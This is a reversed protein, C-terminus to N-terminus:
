GSDGARADAFVRAANAVARACDGPTPGGDFIDQCPGSLIDPQNAGIWAFLEMFVPPDDGEFSVSYVEGEGAVFRFTDNAIYGLAEGFDDTVTVECVVQIIQSEVCAKREQVAYNAAEAWGQYYLLEVAGEADGIAAALESRDWSYFATIVAEAALVSASPEVAGAVEEDDFEIAIEAELFEDADISSDTETDGCATVLLTAACGLMLTRVLRRM